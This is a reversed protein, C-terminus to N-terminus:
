RHEAGGTMPVFRVPALQVEQFREGARQVALLDQVDDGIPIVMRGGDPSVQERLASPIEGPAATVLVVDFPAREPWGGHGDGLRTQVRYGLRRLTEAARRAVPPVIEITYVDAGMAALVAAQYGSGTGIELVRTGPRVAAAQTMLAVIYPQSITQGHGIPLARDQYALERLASSVFEQRPVESMAQLVRPDRIGRPVLQRRVMNERRTRWVEEERTDKALARM